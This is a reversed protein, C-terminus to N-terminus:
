PNCRRHDQRKQEDNYLDLHMLTLFGEENRGSNNICYLCCIIKINCPFGLSLLKHCQM